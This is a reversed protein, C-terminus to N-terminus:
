KNSMRLNFEFHAQKLKDREQRIMDEIFSLSLGCANFHQTGKLKDTATIGKELSAIYDDFTEGVNINIDGKAM